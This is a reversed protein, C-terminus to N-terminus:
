PSSGGVKHTDLARQLYNQFFVDFADAAIAASIFALEHEAGARATDIQQSNESMYFGSLALTILFFFIGLLPSVLYFGARSRRAKKFVM